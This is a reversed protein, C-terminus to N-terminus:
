WLVKSSHKSSVEKTIYDNWGNNEIEKIDQQMDLELCESSAKAILKTLQCYDFNNPFNGLTAHLHKNKLGFGDEIVAVASLKKGKNKFQNKWVLKNLKRLFREWVSKIIEDSLYVDVNMLGNKRTWHKKFTLTIAISQNEIIKPIFERVADRYTPKVLGKEVLNKRIETLKSM